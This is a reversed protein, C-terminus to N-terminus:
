PNNFYEIKESWPSRRGYLDLTRAKFYLKAGVPWDHCFAFSGANSIVTCIFRFDVTYGPTPCLGFGPYLTCFNAPLGFTLYAYDSITRPKSWGICACTPSIYTVSLGRIIKPTSPTPPPAFNVTFNSNSANLVAGNLSIFANFGTAHPINAIAYSQWLRKQQITLNEWLPALYALNARIQATRATLPVSPTTPVIKTIQQGHLWSYVVDGIRGSLRNLLASPYVKAM